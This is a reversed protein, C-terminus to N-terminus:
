LCCRQFLTIVLGSSSKSGFYIYELGFLCFQYHNRDLVFESGFCVRKGTWFVVRFNVLSEFWSIIHFWLGLFLLIVQHHNRDSNIQFIGKKRDSICDFFIQYIFVLKLGLLAFVYSVSTSELVLLLLLSLYLLLLLFM